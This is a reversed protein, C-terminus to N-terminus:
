GGYDRLVRRAIVMRQIESTGEYIRLVRADRYYREIPYDKSYGYGGHIQLARDVIRGVTESASLKAMAAHRGHEEGQDKLWAAKHTLLRAQELETASDALMWQIAQKDALPGGFQERELSYTAAVDLAAQAVGLSQFGVGIRGGDLAMMAIKFGDGENGLLRARSVPVSDFVISVADSSRLGMKDEKGGVQLGESRRDVLFASIGKAGAQGELRGMVVLHEAHYGNTVWIKEGSIRYDDGDREVRCQMNAADSGAGPETVCFAALAGRAMSPLIEAKLEEKGFLMVPTSGVGNHVSIMISIGADVRAVQEIVLGYSLTDLELGGYKKPLCLGFYGQGRLKELLAPDVIGERDMKSSLPAIEGLAFDRVGKAFLQQEETLSFDL